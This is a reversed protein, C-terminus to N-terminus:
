RENQRGTSTVNSTGETTLNNKKLQEMLRQEYAAEGTRDVANWDARSIGARELAQASRTNLILVHGDKLIYDVPVDEASLTGNKLAAAIDDISKGAFAGEKSFFESYTSQAFKADSLIGNGLEEATGAPNLSAGPPALSEAAATSIAATAAPNALMWQVAKTTLEPVFYLAAVAAGEAATGIFRYEFEKWSTSVIIPGGIMDFGRKGNPDAYRLPNDHTYMYPSTEFLRYEYKKMLVQPNENLAPDPTTWRTGRLAPDEVAWTDFYRHAYGPKPALAVVTAIAALLFLSRKM